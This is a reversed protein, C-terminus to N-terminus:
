RRPIWFPRDLSVLGKGEKGGEQGVVHKRSCETDGFSCWLHVNSSCCSTVEFRRATCFRFRVVAWCFLVPPFPLRMCPLVCTGVRDPCPATTVLPALPRNTRCLQLCATLHELLGICEFADRNPRFTARARLTIAAITRCSVQWVRERVRARAFPKRM